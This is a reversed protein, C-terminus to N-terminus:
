GHKGEGIVAQRLCENVKLQSKDGEGREPIYAVAQVNWCFSLL